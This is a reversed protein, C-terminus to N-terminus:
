HDYDRVSYNDVEWPLSASLVEAAECLGLDQLKKELDLSQKEEMKDPPSFSWCGASMNLISKAWCPEKCYFVRILKDFNDCGYGDSCTTTINISGSCVYKM